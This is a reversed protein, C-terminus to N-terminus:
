HEGAYDVDDDDMAEPHVQSAPVSQGTIRELVDLAADLFAEFRDIDKIVGPGSDLWERYREQAQRGAEATTQDCYSFEAGPPPTPASM